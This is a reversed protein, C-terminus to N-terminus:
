DKLCDAYAALNGAGIRRRYESAGAGDENTAQVFDATVKARDCAPLMDWERGFEYALAMRAFVNMDTM